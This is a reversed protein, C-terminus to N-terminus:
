RIKLWKLLTQFEASKKIEPCDYYIKEIIDLINSDSIKQIMIKYQYIRGENFIPDLLTDEQYVLKKFIKLKINEKKFSCVHVTKIEKQCEFCIVKTLGRLNKHM